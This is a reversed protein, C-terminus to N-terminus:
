TDDDGLFQDLDIGSLNSFPSHLEPLGIKLFSSPSISLTRSTAFVVQDILVEVDLMPALIILPLAVSEGVIGSAPGLSLSLWVPHTYADSPLHITPEILTVHM